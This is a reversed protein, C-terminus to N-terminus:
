PIGLSKKVHKRVLNKTISRTSGALSAVLQPEEAYVRKIEAEIKARNRLDQEYAKIKADFEDLIPISQLLEESSKVLSRENFEELKKIEERRVQPPIEENYKVWNSGQRKIFEAVAWSKRASLPRCYEIRVVDGERCKNLEDHVLMTRYSIINKDIHRNWNVNQVRVKVTKLMKGQSVVVGVKTPRM